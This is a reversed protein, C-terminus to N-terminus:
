LTIVLKIKKSRNLKYVLKGIGYGLVAGVFVDTAWHDNGTIRSLGVLSAMTYAVPPVWKHDAYTSAIVSALSFATVAHSSFFSVDKLDLRPGDWQNIKTPTDDNPRHRHTLVKSLTALTNAIIVAKGATIAFGSLDDNKGSLHAYIYTSGIAPLIYFLNGFPEFTKSFGKIFPTNNHSVLDNLPIDLQHIALATGGLALVKLWDNGAWHFPSIYVKAGDSFGSSIARLDLVSYKFAELTDPSVPSVTYASDLSSNTRKQATSNSFNAFIILTIILLRSITKNKM